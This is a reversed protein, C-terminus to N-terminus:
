WWNSTTINRLVWILTKPLFCHGNAHDYPFTQEKIMNLKVLNIDWRHSVYLAVRKLINGVSKKRRVVNELCSLCNSSLIHQYWKRRKGNNECVNKGFINPLNTKACNLIYLKNEFSFSKVISFSITQINYKYKTWMVPRTEAENEHLYSPWFLTDLSFKM